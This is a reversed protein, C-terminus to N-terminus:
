YKGYAEIAEYMAMVNQPPTDHQIVHSSFPVYGGGPALIEIVRKVEDKIQQPTGHPLLHQEDIGGWFCLDGKFAALKEAGMDKALPQIPNLIQIGEEILDPLIPYVSGCSHQFLKAKTKAKIASYIMMHRPKLFKRYIEPSVAMRDQFGLDDTVCLVHLYDGVEDLLRNFFRISYETYMDLWEEMFEPNGYFDMMSKELGLVERSNDLLGDLCLDMVLAYDTEHYLKSAKERLGRFRGPDEPDPWQYAKLDALTEAEALPHFINNYYPQHDVKKRRIGWEDTIVGDADRTPKFGDPPNVALRRFDVGLRTLLSEKPYSLGYQENEVTYEPGPLDLHKRLAEMGTYIMTSVSVSGMEVPVRDAEQHNLVTLVRERPTM